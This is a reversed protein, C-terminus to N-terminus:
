KIHNEIQLRKLQEAEGYHQKLWDIAEQEKIIPNLLQLKEVENKLLGIVKSPKLNLAKQIQTGELLPEQLYITILKENIIFNLMQKLQLVYEDFQTQNIINYDVESQKIAISLVIISQFNTKSYKMFLGINYRDWQSSDLKILSELKDIGGHIDTIFEAVVSPLKIEEKIIYQMLDRCNKVKKHLEEKKFPLLFASFLLLDMKNLNEKFKLETIEERIKSIQNVLGNQQSNNQNLKLQNIIEIALNLHKTIALYYNLEMTQHKLIIDKPQFLIYYLGLQKILEFAKIRNKDKVMKNLEIGIREKSIKDKLLTKLSEDKIAEIIDTNLQFDLKAAFRICRLIRLPDDRFTQLSPLPTRIIRSKLDSLGLETFDEVEDSNLNYFLANITLDRRLADELATGFEVKDPIRTNESYVETRLNVVDIELDFIKFTVTELHKSKDPNSQIKGISSLQVNENQIYTKFKQMFQAGTLNNIAIDIDNSENKLLKDRVWGGAFRLVLKDGNIDKNIWNSLSLLLNKLKLENPNLHLKLKNM